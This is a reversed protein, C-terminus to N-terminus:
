KLVRRLNVYESRDFGLTKFFSLLDTSDWRVSTYVNEIGQEKYYRFVEKAMSKGIGQGMYKPDVGFIAIWASKDMGFGGSLTYTIMFGVVHGKLEAVFSAINKHSTREKLIRGFDIETDRKVISSQIRAIDEADELKLERILFEDM